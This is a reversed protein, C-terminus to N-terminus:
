SNERYIQYIFKQIEFWEKFDDIERAKEKLDSILDNLNETMDAISEYDVFELAKKLLDEPMEKKGTEYISLQHEQIGLFRAVEWQSMGKAKRAKKLDEVTALHCRRQELNM